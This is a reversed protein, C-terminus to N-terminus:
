RFVATVTPDQEETIQSVWNFWLDSIWQKGEEMTCIEINTNEESVPIDMCMIYPTNPNPPDCQTAVIGIRISGVYAELYTNPNNSKYTIPKIVLM